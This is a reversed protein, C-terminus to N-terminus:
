KNFLSNQRGLLIDSILLQLQKEFLNLDKLPDIWIIEDLKHLPFSDLIKSAEVANIWLDKESAEKFIEVWNFEYNLAIFVIDVVDKESQRSLATLKNSLINTITDTKFFLQTPVPNGTRYPIDNVFDLKLVAENQHVFVRIFSDGSVAIEIKIGENKISKLILEVQKEFKPNQNVFFDLDDSYRHNLYARSLATGGTLYFDVPLKEVIRLLKDQLPYLINQYYNKQM